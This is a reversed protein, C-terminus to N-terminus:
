VTDFASGETYPTGCFLCRGFKRSVKSGCKACDVPPRTYKGDPVGDRLDLETVRELLERETLGTREQLLTWMARCVLGLRDLQTIYPLYAPDVAGRAPAPSEDPAEGDDEGCVEGAMRQTASWLEDAM